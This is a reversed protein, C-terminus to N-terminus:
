SQARNQEKLMGDNLGTQSHNSAVESEGEENGQPKAHDEKKRGYRNHGRSYTQEIIGTHNCIAVM